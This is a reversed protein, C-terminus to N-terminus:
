SVTKLLHATYQLRASFEGNQYFYNIAVGHPRLMTNYDAIM